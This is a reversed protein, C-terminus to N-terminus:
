SIVFNQIAWQVIGVVVGIVGGLRIIMQMETGSIKYFLNELKDLEMQSVKEHVIESISIKEAAQEAAQELMHPVQKKLASCIESELKGLISKVLGDASVNFFPIKNAVVNIFDKIKAEVEHRNKRMMDELIPDIDEPQVRKILEDVKILEGEVIRGLNTALEPQRKPLLGQFEFFLFKFPKRPHFLAKIALWNTVWGILGGSFAALALSLLVETQM